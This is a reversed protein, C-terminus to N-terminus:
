GVSANRSSYGHTVHHPFLNKGPAVAKRDLVGVPLIRKLDIALDEAKAVFERELVAATALEEADVLLQETKARLVLDDTTVFGERDHFLMEERQEAGPERYVHGTGIVELRAAVEQIVLVDKRPV